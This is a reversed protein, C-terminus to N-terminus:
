LYMGIGFHMKQRQHAHYIFINHRWTHTDTIFSSYGAGGMDQLSCDNRCLEAVCGCEPVISWQFVIVSMCLSCGLHLLDNPSVFHMDESFPLLFQTLFRVNHSWKGPRTITPNKYQSYPPWQALGMFAKYFNILGRLGSIQLCRISCIGSIM